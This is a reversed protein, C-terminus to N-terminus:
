TKDVVVNDYHVKWLNAANYLHLGLVLSASAGPTAVISLSSDLVTQTDFTIVVHGLAGPQPLTIAMKVHVWSGLALGNSLVHAFLQGPGADRTLAEAFVAGQPGAKTFAYALDGVTLAFFATTDEEGGYSEVLVDLEMTFAKLTGIDKTLLASTEDAAVSHSTNVQLARPPSKTTTTDLLVNGYRSAAQTDWGAKVTGRDFDDCFYHKDPLSGCFTPAGADSATADSAADATDGADTAATATTFKDGGCAASAVCAVLLAVYAARAARGRSSFRLSMM